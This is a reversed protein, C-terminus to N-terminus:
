GGFQDSLERGRETARTIAADVLARFGGTEFQELAAQTTGGPSTVRERLTAPDESGEQGHACCRARHEVGPHAHPMPASARACPRLRGDGGDAPLFLGPRQRLSRHGRGDPSRRRDLGDPRHRGAHGRRALAIRREVGADALLGTVGAGILGAHEAHLAGPTGLARRALQPLEDLRIGAAISVILPRRVAVLDAIGPLGRAMVQPKVALVIVDATAAADRNEAICTCASSPSSGTACRKWRSPSTSVARTPAAPSRGASSARAMNGGGIFAINSM